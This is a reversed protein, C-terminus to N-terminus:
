HKGGKGNGGFILFKFGIIVLAFFLFIKFVQLMDYIFGSVAAHFSEPNVLRWMFLTIIILTIVFGLFWYANTTIRRM